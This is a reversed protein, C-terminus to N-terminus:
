EGTKMAPSVSTQVHYNKGDVGLDASYDKGNLIKTRIKIYKEDGV